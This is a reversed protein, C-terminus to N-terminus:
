GSGARAREVAMMGLFVVWATWALAAVVLPWRPLAPANGVPINPDSWRDDAGSGGQAATNPSRHADDQTTM